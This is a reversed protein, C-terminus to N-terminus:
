ALSALHGTDNLRKVTHEGSDERRLHTLSCPRLEYMMDRLLADTTLGLFWNIVCITPNTHSVMVLRDRGAARQAELFGAVRLYMARWTEAQPYPTWDLASGVNPIALRRAEDKPLGAALGAHLERLAPALEPQLGLPAAILAATRAARPVDSGIVATPAFPGHDALYRGTALGQREGLATLQSEAGGAWGALHHQSEGHRILILDQM